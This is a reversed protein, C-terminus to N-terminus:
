FIWSAVCNVVNQLLRSELHLGQVDGGDEGDGGDGMHDVQVLQLCSQRQLHTIIARIVLIRNTQSAQKISKIQKPM